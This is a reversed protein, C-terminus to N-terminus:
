HKQGPDFLFVSPAEHVYKKEQLLVESRARCVERLFGNWEEEVMKLYM